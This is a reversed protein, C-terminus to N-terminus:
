VLFYKSFDHGSFDSGECVSGIVYGDADGIAYGDADGLFFCNEGLIDECIGGISFGDIDGIVFGDSDGIAHCLDGIVFLPAMSGSKLRLTFSFPGSLALLEGVESNSLDANWISMYQDKDNAVGIAVENVNYVVVPYSYVDELDFSKMGLTIEEGDCVCYDNYYEYAMVVERKSLM